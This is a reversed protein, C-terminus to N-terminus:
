SDAISLAPEKQKIERTPNFEYGARYGKQVIDADYKEQRYKRTDEKFGGMYETVQIPKVLVLAMEESHEANQDEYKRQLGAAFGSAYNTVNARNAMNVSPMNQPIPVNLASELFAVISKKDEKGWRQIHEVAYDLIQCAIYPDDGLGVYSITGVKSRKAHRSTTGCCHADGIIAALQPLWINRLNSFTVRDFSVRNLEQNGVDKIDMDSLKNRAMIDRARLLAAQAENPNDSRALALLKRVKDIAKEREM